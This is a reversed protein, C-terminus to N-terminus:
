LRLDKRIDAGYFADIKEAERILQPDESKPVKVILKVMLDGARKSKPNFAGKGKLKLTQGSQSGRPVKVKVQGDIAPITVSGGAVAEGVTVPVEMYLNDGRRELFPHPKLRIILYLDGSSGGGAGPEGKGALRVKSGEKVGRPIVVKLRESGATRGSGGCQPCPKGIRGHGHCQPCPKTFHMPGQAVDIRGSGGCARCTSIEAGPDTGSGQCVTCPKMKQMSIETEFGKLASILDISMEHEIDRGRASATRGFSGGTGSGFGFIDGFIDEYSEYGGYGGAAGARAQQQYAGWQKYERAKEADFSSQLGEEGFEDYLKRKAKNGLADYAQSIEKFKQEAERNGPNIDPHHKRALKRYAKKIDGQSANKSVGLIHYFDESM